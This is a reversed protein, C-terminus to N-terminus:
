PHQQAPQAPCRSASRCDRALLRPARRAAAAFGARMEAAARRASGGSRMTGVMMRGDALMKVQACRAKEECVQASRRACWPRV